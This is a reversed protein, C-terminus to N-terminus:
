EVLPSWITKFTWCSAPSVSAASCKELIQLLPHPLSLRGTIIEEIIHLARKFSGGSLELACAIVRDEFRELYTQGDWSKLAYSTYFKMAGLTTSFRHRFSAAFDYIQHLEENSFQDWVSKDYYGNVFLYDLKDELTPHYQTRPNVHQLHYQRVAEKDSEFNITHDETWTNLAANLDIYSEESVKNGM